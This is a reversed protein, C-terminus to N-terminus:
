GRKTVVTTMIVAAIIGMWHTGRPREARGKLQASTGTCAEADNVGALAVPWAEGACLSFQCIQDNSTVNDYKVLVVNGAAPGLLGYTSAM